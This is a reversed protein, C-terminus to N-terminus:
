AMQYLGMGVGSLLSALVIRYVAGIGKSVVAGLSVAAAGRLFRLHKM